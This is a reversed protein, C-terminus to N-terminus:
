IRMVKAVIVSMDDRTRSNKVAETLILDAYEKLSKKPPKALLELLWPSDEASEVIGDSLMIIYDDGKVEVRIKESDINKMLGIPATQSKIRFISSDRKVFSPASGSKVFTAEGTILDLEFVDLTASCEESRRRMSHNLLHMVTDKSAGFDLARELFAVAFESTDKAAEGRGMGDSMLAFFRDDSSEFMLVSDGSIEREDGAVKGSACEVAYARRSDCEMLAMKGHRYFEPAGLKVGSANELGLRLEKSSIKKGDEDECALIFHMRRTGFVRIEGDDIGFNRMVESLPEVLGDRSLQEAEDRARAEGILKAILGYEEATSDTDKRKHNEREARAAERIIAASVEEARACFETATNIDEPKIREGRGLKEAISDAGRICPRIDEAMCLKLSSCSRCYGDAIDIVLNRYEEHTLPLHATSYNGILGSLSTLSAELSNLSAASRNRYKLAAAGVMDKASEATRSCEEPSKEKRISKCLPAALTAAILYEPLTSLFGELGATYGSWASLMAGGLILAYSVGFNFLLGAGLGCLAFSVSYVGSVGLSSVFGVTLARFPGFRRAVLLTVFAVFIHAMSIGFLVLEALSLAVFFLLSLASLSFMIVNYKESDRKGALSFVNKNEVLLGYLDIGSTFLGSLLFVTAPPMLVMAAGFLVSTVSFGSLLAEYVAVVFGGIVAASMRAGIGETFLGKGERGGSIIVRIFVTLAVSLAYVVGEAGLTLSGIVCGAATLWVDFPMLAVAAVGLPHAGFIIHCRAFLLGATFLLLRLLMGNRDGLAGGSLADRVRKIGRGVSHAGLGSNDSSGADTAERMKEKDKLKDM